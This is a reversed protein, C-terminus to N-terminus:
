KLSNSRPYEIHEQFEIYYIDLITLFIAAVLPGMIFGAPGFLYIGGLTSFFVLLDHMGAHAGVIRPRLFNDITSVVCVSLFIVAIGQWISGTVIRLVGFPILVAGSGVFPILSFIFMVVGWLLWAEAGFIWLIMTGLFSQILAIFITGQVAARSISAFREVIRDKHEESLPVVSRIKHLMLEGDRLFYFISFLIIFLDVVVVLTARSTKNIFKALYIGLAKTGDQILSQWDVDFSSLWVGAPTSNIKALVGSDGRQAIERVRPGATHYLGIAQTVVINSIIFIPILLGVLILLCSIFASIGRKNWFLKLLKKYVPYFLTAFVAALIIEIVFIKIVNVFLVLSLVFAALLFYKGFKKEDLIGAHRSRQDVSSYEQNDPNM